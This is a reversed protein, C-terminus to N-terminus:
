KGTGPAGHIVTNKTYTLNGEDAANRYKDLQRAEIGIALKQEEFSEDSQRDYQHIDETPSWELPTDRTVAAVSERTPIGQTHQLVSYVADLQSNKMNQWWQNTEDTKADLLTSMTFPPLENMSLENRMIADAFVKHATVLYIQAVDLSIPYFVLQEEIYSRTLTNTYRKLSSVDANQGILGVSQLCQRTTPHTLADIETDYKGLSLVIHTLFQHANSPRVDSPVPIPLHKMGKVTHIFNSRMERVWRENEDNLINGEVSAQHAYIMQRVALNMAIRFENDEDLEDASELQILNTEILELIDKMALEYMKVKRGLCDIWQCRMLNNSLMPEVEDENYTKSEDISCYRFYDMPNRFVGLLEPPRLSFISIMDYKSASGNHNRYTVMQTATMRHQEALDFQFRARQMPIQAIFSDPTDDSDEHGRPDVVDGKDDIKIANSPRLEFIM